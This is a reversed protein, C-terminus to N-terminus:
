PDPARGGTPRAPLSRRQAEDRLARGFRDFAPLQSRFAFGLVGALAGSFVEEHVLRTGAGTPELRFSHEGRIGLRHGVWRLERGPDARTIRVTFHLEVGLSSRYRLRVRGGSRVEGEAAVVM